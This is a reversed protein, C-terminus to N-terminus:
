FPKAAAAVPEISYLSYGDKLRRVIREGNCPRNILKGLNRGLGRTSPRASTNNVFEDLSRLRGCENEYMRFIETATMQQKGADSACEKIAAIALELAGANRDVAKTAEMGMLPDLSSVAHVAGAIRECWSEFSGMKKGELDELKCVFRYRLLTLANSVLEARNDRVYGELNPHAFDSRTEPSEHPCDLIIPLTRRHSDGALQMNNGTCCWVTNVELEGTMKSSGLIRGTWFGSTLMGDIAAGGIPKVLNDFLAVPSDERVISTIVKSMEEDSDTYPRAPTVRGHAILSAINVLKTKGSGPINGNVAFLPTPGEVAARGIMTLVMTAWAAKAFEDVFPFDYVVDVLNHYADFADESDPNEPILPFDMSPEYILGTSEDYGPTQLISGDPRITPTTIIGKLPKFVSKDKLERIARLLRDSPDKAAQIIEKKDGKGRTKLVVTRCALSISDALSEVTVPKIVLGRPTRGVSVLEDGRVFIATEILRTGRIWPSDWGLKTLANVIGTVRDSFAVDEDIYVPPALIEGPKKNGMADRAIAALPESALPRNEKEEFPKGSMASQFTRDFEFADIPEAGSTNWDSAIGRCETEDCGFSRCHQVVEYLRNNRSGNAHAIKSVYARARAADSNGDSVTPSSADPAFVTKNDDSTTNPKPPIRLEQVKALTAAIAARSEDTPSDSLDDSIIRSPMNVGVMAVWRGDDYLEVQQRKEGPVAAAMDNKKNAGDLSGHVIANIGTGSFSKQAYSQAEGLENLIPEAWDRFNPRGQKDQGDLCNDLDVMMFPTDTLVFGVYTGANEAEAVADEYSKWNAPDQWKCLPRKDGDVHRWTIWRDFKKLSAPIQKTQLHSNM